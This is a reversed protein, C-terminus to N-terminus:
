PTDSGPTTQISANVHDVTEGKVPNGQSDYTTASVTGDAVSFVTAGYFELSSPTANEVSGDERIKVPYGVGRSWDFYTFTSGPEPMSGDSKAYYIKGGVAFFGTQMEGTKSDLYYNKGDVTKFGTQMVGDKDCYYWESEYDIWGTGIAGLNSLIGVAFYTKGDVIIRGYKLAGDKGLYYKNGNEELWETHMAGDNKDFFYYDAGSAEGIRQWGKQQVGNEDAYYKNGDVAFIGVGLVGDAGAYYRKGEFDQWGGVQAKADKVLYLDGNTDRVVGNDVAAGDEGFFWIDDPGLVVKGTQMVGDNDFYYIKADINHGGVYAEGHKDPNFYYKKGDITQWGTQIVGSSDAYHKKATVGEGITIWGTRMVGDTGLYYLKKGWFGEEEFWETDMEYHTVHYWKDYFDLFWGDSIRHGDDIDFFYTETVGDITLESKGKEIHGWFDAYYEGGTATFLVDEYMRGNEGEKESYYYLDGDREMFGTYIVGLDADGRLWSLCDTAYYRYDGVVFGGYDMRGKEIKIHQREVSPSSVSQGGEDDPVDVYEYGEKEAFHYLKGDATKFGTQVVGDNDTYFRTYENEKVWGIQIVGNEDAIVDKGDSRRFRNKCLVGNKNFYYLKGDIRKYGVAMIGTNTDFYMTNNSWWGKIKAGDDDVRYLDITDSASETDRVRYETKNDTENYEGVIWRDKEMAGSSGFFYYNGEHEAWDNILCLGKDAGTQSEPAYYTSYGIEHWGNVGEKTWTMCYIKGNLTEVHVTPEEPIEEGATYNLEWIPSYCYSGGYNDAKRYGSTVRYAIISVSSGESVVHSWGCRFQGEDEQWYWGLTRHDYGGVSPATIMGRAPYLKGNFYDKQDVAMIAVSNSYSWTETEHDPQAKEGMTINSHIKYTGDEQKTVTPYSANISSNVYGTSGPVPSDLGQICAGQVTAEDWRSPDAVAEDRLMPFTLDYHDAGGWWKLNVRITFPDTNSLGKEQMRVVPLEFTAQVKKGNAVGHEDYTYYFDYHNKARGYYKAHRDDYTWYKAEEANDEDFSTGPSWQATLNMPYGIDMNEPLTVGGYFVLNPLLAGMDGDLYSEDQFNLPTNDYPATSPIAYGYTPVGYISSVTSDMEGDGNQYLVEVRWFIDSGGAFVPKTIMDSVDEDEIPYKMLGYESYWKSPDPEIPKYDTDEVEFNEDVSAYIAIYQVRTKFVMAAKTFQSADCNVTMSVHKDATFNLATIDVSELVAGAGLADAEADTGISVPDSGGASDGDAGEPAEENDVPEEADSIDAIVDEESGGTTDDMTEAMNIGPETEGAESKATDANEGTDGVSAFVAPDAGASGEEPALGDEAATLIESDSVATVEEAGMTVTLGTFLQLMLTLIMFYAITRRKTRRKM